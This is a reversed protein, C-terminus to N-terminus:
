ADDKADERAAKTERAAGTEKEEAAKEKDEAAKEEKERVAKEEEESPREKKVKERMKELEAAEQEDAQTRSAEAQRVLRARERETLQTPALGGKSARDLLQHADWVTIQTYAIRINEERMRHMVASNVRDFMRRTDVYSSIWWRLRWQQGQDTFALLLAEIPKDPLVGKVPQVSEVLTKRVFEVDSGYPLNFDVQIRYTPDPFTHNVVPNSGIVNNPMIVMRNDRTLIRTTRLGIQQVDGWTEQGPLEIRDGVRFPRDLMIFVGAFFNALTDQAAFAIVLGGIAGGAAFLTLNIGFSSLIYFLGIILIIVGGVKEFVPYLRDDLESETRESVRKGVALVVANWLRYAVYIIAGALVVRWTTELTTFVWAPLPFVQLSRVIGFTFVLVFVPRSVIKIIRDDLDTKTRLTLLKLTPSILWMTLVGILLWAAFNLVFSGLSEDLPAPLPNDWRGLIQDTGTAQVHVSAAATAATFDAAVANVQLELDFDRPAPFRHATVRVTVDREDGPALVTQAPTVEAEWNGAGPTKVSFTLHQAQAGEGSVVRFIATATDGGHVFVGDAPGVVEVAAGAAAPVALSLLVVLRLWHRAGVPRM